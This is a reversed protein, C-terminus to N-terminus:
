SLTYLMNQIHDVKKMKKCLSKVLLKLINDKLSIKWVIVDIISNIIIMTVTIKEMVHSIAGRMQISNGDRYINGAKHHHHNNNYRKLLKFGFDDIQSITIKM